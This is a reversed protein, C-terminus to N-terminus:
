DMKVFFTLVRFINSRIADPTLIKKIKQFTLPHQHGFFHFNDGVNKNDAMYKTGFLRWWCRRLRINKPLTGSQPDTFSKQLWKFHLAVWQHVMILTFVFGLRGFKYIHNHIKAFIFHTDVFIQIKAIPIRSHWQFLEFLKTQHEM